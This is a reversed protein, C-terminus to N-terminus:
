GKNFKVKPDFYQYLLDGIIYFFTTLVGILLVIFYVVSWDAKSISNFLLRGMGPINFIVEIILSGTIFLPVSGVLLTILPIVTNPLVHKVLVDFKSAGKSFATNVYPLFYEKAVNGKLIRIFVALDTIFLCFVAPLYKTFYNNFISSISNSTFYDEQFSPFIKLGYDPNMLFVQVLTALWFIPIVYFLLSLWEIIQGIAGGKYVALVVIPIGILFILFLNIVMLTMTWSLAKGVKAKVTSGDIYSEGWDGKLINKVWQHFQNDLGHLRLSPWHFSKKNGVIAVLKNKANSDIEKEWKPDL